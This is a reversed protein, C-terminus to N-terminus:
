PSIDIDKQSCKMNCIIISPTALFHACGNFGNSFISIDTNKKFFMVNLWRLLEFSIWEDKYDFFTCFEVSPPCFYKQLISAM